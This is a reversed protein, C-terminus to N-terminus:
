RRINPISISQICDFNSLIGIVTCRGYHILAPNAALALEEVLLFKNFNIFEPVIFHM